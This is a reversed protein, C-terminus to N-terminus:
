NIIPKWPSTLLNGHHEQKPEQMFKSLIHVAYSIEPRTITLYILRGILLQYSTPDHLIKGEALALKHNTEMPFDAPKSGLLGCENIIELAHKRQSLVLGKLGHAVEIGM